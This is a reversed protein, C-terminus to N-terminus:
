LGCVTCDRRRQFIPAAVSWTIGLCDRVAAPSRPPSPETKRRPRAVHQRACREDGFNAREAGVTPTVHMYFVGDPTPLGIDPTQCWGFDLGKAASYAVGSFAYRDCVLHTGRGLEEVIMQSAEWRNASFLLHVTEDPLEIQKRLYMDILTGTATERNPFCM